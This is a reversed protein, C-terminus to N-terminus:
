YTVETQKYEALYDDLGAHNKNFHGTHKAQYGWQGLLELCKQKVGPLHSDHTALLIRPRYKQIVNRSGMLVDYEAGEVDIKLVDPPPNGEAVFDDIAIGRVQMQVNGNRVYSAGETDIKSFSLMQRHSTVAEPLLIIKASLRNKNKEIHQHFLDRHKPIPEFAIVKGESIITAALISYYGTNAGLDYFVTRSNLWSCFEKLTGPDEYTGTLFDYNVSTSWKFGKLPGAFVPLFKVGLIYRCCKIFFKQLPKINNNCRRQDICLTGRNAPM